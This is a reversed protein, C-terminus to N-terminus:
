SKAACPNCAKAECPNCVKKVACPNCAKAACPNCPNCPNCAKAAAQIEKKAATPLEAGDEMPKSICGSLAVASAMALTGTVVATCLPRQKFKKSPDSLSM